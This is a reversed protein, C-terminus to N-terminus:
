NIIDGVTSYNVEFDKLNSCMEPAEASINTPQNTSAVLTAHSSLFLEWDEPTINKAQFFSNLM